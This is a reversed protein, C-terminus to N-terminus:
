PAGRRPDWPLTDLPLPPFGRAALADLIPQEWLIRRANLLVFGTVTGHRDREIVLGPAPEEAGAGPSAGEYGGYLVDFEEDYTLRLLRATM